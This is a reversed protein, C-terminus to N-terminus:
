RLFTHFALVLGIERPPAELQPDLFYVRRGDPSVDYQTGYHGTGISAVAVRAPRGVSPRGVPTRGVAVSQLSGDHDVFLLERGDRSWVPQTGGSVSVV